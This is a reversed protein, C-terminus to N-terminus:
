GRARGVRALFDEATDCDLMAASAVRTFYDPDTTDTLLRSVTAATEPGFKRDTQQRLLSVREQKRGQRIGQMRGQRIGQRRGQARGTRRESERFKDLPGCRTGMNGARGALAATWM